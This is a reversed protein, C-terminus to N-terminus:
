LCVNVSCYVVIGPLLLSLVLAVLPLGFCMFCLGSLRLLKLHSYRLCTRGEIVKSGQIGTETRSEDVHGVDPSSADSLVQYSFLLAPEGSM